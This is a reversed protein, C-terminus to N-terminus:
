VARKPRFRLCILSCLLSAGSGGAAFIAVQQATSFMEGGFNVLPGSAGSVAAGILTAAGAWSWGNALRPSLAMAALGTLLAPIIGILYGLPVGWIAMLALEPMELIERWAVAFTVIVGAVPPGVLAFVAVTAIRSGAGSM